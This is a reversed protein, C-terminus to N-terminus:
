PRTVTMGPQMLIRCINSDFKKTEGRMMCVTLSFTSYLNGVFFNPQVLAFMGLLSKSMREVDVKTFKYQDLPQTQQTLDADVKGVPNFEHMNKWYTKNWRHAGDHVLLFDLEQMALGTQADLAGREWLACQALTTNLENASIPAQILQQLTKTVGRICIGKDGNRIERDMGHTHSDVGIKFHERPLQEALKSHLGLHQYVEYAFQEETANGFFRNQSSMLLGRKGGLNLIPCHEDYFDGKGEEKTKPLLDSFKRFQVYCESHEDQQGELLEKHEEDTYFEIDYTRRLSSLNWMQLEPQFMGTWEEKRREPPIILTRGLLHAHQIASVLQFLQNGLQGPFREYTLYRRTDSGQARALRVHSQVKSLYSQTLLLNEKGFDSLTQSFIISHNVHKTIYDNKYLLQELDLLERGKKFNHFGIPFPSCCDLQYGRNESKGKWYWGTPDPKMSLHASPSFLLIRERGQADHTEEAKIGADQLCLHTTLDENAGYRDECLTREAVEHSPMKMLVEAFTHLAARSLGTIAGAIM